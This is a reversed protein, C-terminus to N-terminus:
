RVQLRARQAELHSVIDSAKRADALVHTEHLKGEALEVQTLRDGAPSNRKALGTM